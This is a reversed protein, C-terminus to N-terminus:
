HVSPKRKDRRSGTRIIQRAVVAASRGHRRHGALKREHRFSAPVNLPTAAAEDACPATGAEISNLRCRTSERRRNSDEFRKREFPYAPLPLRRRREQRYFSKWDVTVGALWLQGCVATLLAEEESAGSKSEMFSSLVPMKPNRATHQKALMSLTQGPGVELLVRGPEKLLEGLGDGFRVTRRLHAADLLGPGHGPRRHNWTGTANSIAPVQPPRRQNNVQGNGCFPQLAREMMGPVASFAHSTLLPKSAVKRRDSEQRLSGVADAPGSVVCLAAGNVAALSVRDNLHPKRFGPRRCAFAAIDREHPLQQMLRGACQRSWNSAADELTFVEQWAPMGSTSASATASAAEFPRPCWPMGPWGCNRWRMNLHCVAGTALDTATQAYWSAKLSIRWM